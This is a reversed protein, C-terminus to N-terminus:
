HCLLDGTYFKKCDPCLTGANTTHVESLKFDALNELCSFCEGTAKEEKQKEEVYCQEVNRWEVCLIHPLNPNYFPEVKLDLCDWEDIDDMMTEWQGVNRPFVRLQLNTYPINTGDVPATEALTLTLFKDVRELMSLHQNNSLAMRSFAGQDVYWTTNKWGITQKAHLPKWFKNIQLTPNVGDQKEKGVVVVNTEKKKPGYFGVTFLNVVELVKNSSEGKENITYLTNPNTMYVVGEGKLKINNKSCAQRIMWAESAYIFNGDEDEVYTLPRKHNRIANWTKNNKDYFVLSAAERGFRKWYEEIGEENIFSFAAHSDSLPDKIKSVRHQWGHDLSGNHMGIVNEFEFPHALNRDFPDGWTSWRNHGMMIKNFQDLKVQSLNNTLPSGELLDFPPVADKDMVVEHSKNVGVMGTAHPGRHYDYFLLNRFAKTHKHQIKEGVIGVLGCM